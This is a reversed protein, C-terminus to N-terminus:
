PLTCMVYIKWGKQNRIGLPLEVKTGVKGLDPSLLSRTEKQTEQNWNITGYAHSLQTLVRHKTKQLPHPIQPSNSTTSDGM